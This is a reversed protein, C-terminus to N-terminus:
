PCVFTLPIYKHVPINKIYKKYIPNIHFIKTFLSLLITKYVFTNSYIQLNCFFFHIIKYVFNYTKSRLPLDNM